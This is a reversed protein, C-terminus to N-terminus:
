VGKKYLWYSYCCPVMTIVVLIGILIITMGPIQDFSGIILLMGGIVWLYGALHHTKNWNEESHLTWPLKIGVTYNQKCKPLYNGNATILVGVMGLVIMQISIKYGMAILLSVPVMIVSLLPITWKGINRVISPANNRRPDNNLSFHTLLNFAAMIFPLGFAAFAKPAYDNPVGKSNFHIPVEAPLQDYLLLSLIIPLLCVITTVWLLKDKKM